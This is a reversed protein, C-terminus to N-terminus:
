ENRTRRRNKLLLADADENAEPEGFKKVFASFKKRIVVEVRTHDPLNVPADLVLTGKKYVANTKIASMLVGKDNITGYFPLFLLPQPLVAMAHISLGFM